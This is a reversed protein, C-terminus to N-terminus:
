NGHHKPLCVQRKSDWFWFKGRVFRDIKASYGKIWNNHLIYAEHPVSGNALLSDWYKLVGGNPFKMSDFFVVLDKNATTCFDANSKYCLVADFSMQESKRSSISHEIIDKVLEIVYHKSKLFYFGSNVRQNYYGSYKPIPNNSQVIMDYHTYTVVGRFDKVLAVDSDCWLVNYGLELIIKVSAIKLKTTEKFSQQGYEFASNSSMREGKLANGPFYFVPIGCLYLCEFADKDFAAVLYNYDMNLRRLMCVWNMLMDIYGFTVGTMLIHENIPIAELLDQLSPVGRAVENVSRFIPFKLSLSYASPEEAVQRSKMQMNADVFKTLKQVAGLGTYFRRSYMSTRTVANNHYIRWDDYIGQSWRSRSSSKHFKVKQEGGSLYYSHDVHGLTMVATADIVNGRVRGTEHIWWNDWSCSSRIFPPYPAQITPTSPQNWVFM